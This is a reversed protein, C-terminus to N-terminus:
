ARHHRNELARCLLLPSDSCSNGSHDDVPTVKTTSHTSLPRRLPQDPWMGPLAAVRGLTAGAMAALTRLRNCARERGRAGWLRIIAFAHDGPFISGDRTVPAPPLSVPAPPRSPRPSGGPEAPPPPQRLPTAARARGLPLGSQLIAARSRLTPLDLVGRPLREGPLGTAPSTNGRAGDDTKASLSSLVVIEHCTLVLKSTTVQRLNGLSSGRRKLRRSEKGTGAEAM